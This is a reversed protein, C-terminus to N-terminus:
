PPTGCPASKGGCPDPKPDNCIKTCFWHHYGLTIPRYPGDGRYQVMCVAPTTENSAPLPDTCPIADATRHADITVHVGSQLQTSTLWSPAEALSVVQDFDPIKTQYNTMHAENGAGFLAYTITTPADFNMSLHRFYVVREIVLPVGRIIPTQDAWPWSMYMPLQPIGRFIDAVFSTRVGSSMDPVTLLDQPSNGLFYTNNPHSKRDENYQRMAEYPLRAQLVIQFNHEEMGYMTLHSIFLTQRGMMIFAHLTPTSDVQSPDAAAKALDAKIDDVSSGYSRPPSKKTM